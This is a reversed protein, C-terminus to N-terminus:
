KKPMLFKEGASRMFNSVDSNAVRFQHEDIFKQEIWAVESVENCDQTRLNSFEISTSDCTTTFYLTTGRHALVVQSANLSEKLVTIGAEEKCERIGTCTLDLGDIKKCVHGKPFSWMGSANGLVLLYRGTVHCRIIIGVKLVKSPDVVVSYRGDFVRDIYVGLMEKPKEKKKEIEKSEVAKVTKTNRGLKTFRASTSAGNATKVKVKTKAVKDAWAEVIEAVIKKTTEETEIVKDAPLFSFDDSSGTPATPVIPSIPADSVRWDQLSHMLRNNLEGSADEGEDGSSSASSDSSDLSDNEELVPALTGQLSPSNVTTASIDDLFKQVYLFCFHGVDLHSLYVPRPADQARLLDWPSRWRLSKCFNKRKSKCSGAITEMMKVSSSCLGFRYYKGEYYVPEASFSHFLESGIGTVNRIINIGQKNSARLSNNVKFAPFYHEKTQESTNSASDISDTKYPSVRFLLRGTAVCQIIM